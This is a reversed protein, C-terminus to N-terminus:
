PEADEISIHLAGPKTSAQSLRAQTWSVKSFELLISSTEVRPINEERIGLNRHFLFSRQNDKEIQIFVANGM